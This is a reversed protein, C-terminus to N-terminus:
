EFSWRWFYGQNFWHDIAWFLCRFWYTTFAVTSNTIDNCQFSLSRCSFSWLRWCYIAKEVDLVVMSTALFIIQLWIFFKYLYVTSYYCPDSYQHYWLVDFLIYCWVFDEYFNFVIISCSHQMVWCKKIFLSTLMLWKLENSISIRYNLIKIETWFFSYWSKWLAWRNSRKQEM